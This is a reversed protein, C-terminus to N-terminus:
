RIVFEEAQFFRVGPVVAGPKTVDTSPDLDGRNMRARLETVADNVRLSVNLLHPAGDMAAAADVLEAKWPRKAFGIAGGRSEDSARVRQIERPADVEVPPPAELDDPVAMGMEEYEKRAAEVRAQEEAAIRRAERAAEDAERQKRRNEEQRWANIASERRTKATRLKEDSLTENVLKVMREFPLRLKERAVKLAKIGVALDHGEALAQKASFEDIVSVPAGAIERATRIELSELEASMQASVRELATLAHGTPTTM